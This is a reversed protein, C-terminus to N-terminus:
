QQVELIVIKEVLGKGIHIRAKDIYGVDTITKLTIEFGNESGIFVRINESLKYEQGDIYLTEANISSIWGEISGSNSRNTKDAGIAIFPLILFIISVFLLCRKKLKHHRKMHIEGGYNVLEL